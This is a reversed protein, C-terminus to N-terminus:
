KKSASCASCCNNGGCCKDIDESQMEKVKISNLIAKRICKSSNILLEKMEADAHRISYPPKFLIATGRAIDRAARGVEQWYDLLNKSPGWHIVYPLQKVEVGLGFAITSILCRISSHEGSFEVAISIRHEDPLKRHYMGIRQDAEEAGLM